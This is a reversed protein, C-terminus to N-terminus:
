IIFIYKVSGVPVTKLCWSRIAAKFDKIASQTKKYEDPLYEM